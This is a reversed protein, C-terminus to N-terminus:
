NTEMSEPHSQNCAKEDSTESPKDVKESANSTDQMESDTQPQGNVNKEDAPPEVKPKPKSLIPWVQSELDEKEKKIAAVTVPPNQHPQLKALPQLYQGHWQDKQEWINKVKLMDEKDIHAYLEEKAEYSQLAKHVLQLSTGLANLASPRQEWETYRFLIPDGHKKLYDLKQVYVSKQQDEGEDYLWNETDELIQKIQDREQDTVFKELEASLKGRFDYVYEEVANKADAKEKELKDQMIMKAEKEIFDNLVDKSLESSVECKIPLETTKVLNKQKKQETEKKENEAMLSIYVFGHSRPLFQTSNLFLKQQHCNNM